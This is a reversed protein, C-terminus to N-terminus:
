CNKSNWNAKDEEKVESAGRENLSSVVEVAREVIARGADIIATLRYDTQQQQNEM